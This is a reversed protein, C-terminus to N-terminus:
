AVERAVAGEVGGRGGGPERPVRAHRPPVDLVAAERRPNARGGSGHLNRNGIANLLLSPEHLSDEAAAVISGVEATGISTHNMTRMQALPSRIPISSRPPDVRPILPRRRLRLARGDKRQRLLNDHKRQDVQVLVVVVNAPPCGRRQVERSSLAARKRPPAHQQRIHLGVLARRRHCHLKVHAGLRQHRTREVHWLLADPDELDVHRQRWRLRAQINLAPRQAVREHGGEVIVERRRGREDLSHLNHGDLLVHVALAAVAAPPQKCHRRCGGLDRHENGKRFHFAHLAREIDLGERLHRADIRHTGDVDRARDRQVLLELRRLLLLLLLLLLNLLSSSVAVLLRRAAVVCDQNGADAASDCGEQKGHSPHERPHSGLIPLLRRLGHMHMGDAHLLELGLHTIIDLMHSSTYSKTMCENTHSYSCLEFQQHPTLSTHHPTLRPWVEM